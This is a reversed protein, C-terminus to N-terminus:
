ISNYVFIEAMISVFVNNLGILYEESKEIASLRDTHNRLNM